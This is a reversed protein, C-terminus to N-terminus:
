GMEAQCFCLLHRFLFHSTQCALQLEGSKAQSCNGWDILKVKVRPSFSTVIINPPKLDNHSYQCQQHLCALAQMCMAVATMCRVLGGFLAGHLASHLPRSHLSAAYLVAEHKAALRWAYAAGAVDESDLGARAFVFVAVCPLCSALCVRSLSVDLM